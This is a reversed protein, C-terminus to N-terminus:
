CWFLLLLLLLMAVASVVIYCILCCCCLLLLFLLLLLMSVAAVGVCCFCSVENLFKSLDYVYGDIVIWAEKAKSKVEDM